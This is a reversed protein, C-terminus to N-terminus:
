LFQVESLFGNTKQIKFHDMIGRGTDGDIFECFVKDVM